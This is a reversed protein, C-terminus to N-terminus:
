FFFFITSFCKILLKSPNFVPWLHAELVITYYVTYCWLRTYKTGPFVYQFPKTCFCFISVIITKGWFFGESNGFGTGGETKFTCLPNASPNIQNRAKVHRHVWLCRQWPLPCCCCCSSGICLCSVILSFFFLWKVTLFM